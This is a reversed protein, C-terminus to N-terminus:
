NLESPPAPPEGSEPDPVPDVFTIESLVAWRPDPEPAHHHEPGATNLDAGCVPCLGLCDPAHLLTTPLALALADRAWAGVDLISELVYPSAFEDDGEGPQSVERADVTFEPDAPELCRMCPGHLAASFGLRLAYGQGTMRSIDLRATIPRAEGSGDVGSVTYTHGGLEFPVFALDLEVHRGEGSTLRLAGLDFTDSATAM